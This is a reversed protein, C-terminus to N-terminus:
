EGDPFRESEVPEENREYAYDFVEQDSTVELGLFLKLGEKLTNEVTAYDKGAYVFGLTGFKKNECALETVSFGQNRLKQKLSRFIQQKDKFSRAHRLFVHVQCVGVNLSDM